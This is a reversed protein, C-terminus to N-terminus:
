LLQMFNVRHSKFSSLTIIISLVETSLLFPLIDFYKLHIEVLLNECLDDM